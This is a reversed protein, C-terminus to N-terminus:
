LSIWVLSRIPDTISCLIECGISPSRLTKTGHVYYCSIFNRENGNNVKM